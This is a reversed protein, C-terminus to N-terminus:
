GAAEVPAGTRAMLEGAGERDLVVRGGAAPKQARDILAIADDATFGDLRAVLFIDHTRHTFPQADRVSRSGLFYPNPVAGPAAALGAWTPGQRASRSGLATRRPGGKGGGHDVPGGGLGEHYLAHYLAAPGSPARSSAGPM